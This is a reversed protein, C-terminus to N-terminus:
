RVGRIDAEAVVDVADAVREGGLPYYFLDNDKVAGTRTYNEAAPISEREAAM